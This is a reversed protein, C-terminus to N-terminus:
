SVAPPAARQRRAVFAAIASALDGKPDFSAGHLAKTDADIRGAVVDLIQRNGAAASQSWSAIMTGLEVARERLQERGVLESVVGMALAVEATIERGGLFMARAVSDGFTDAVLRIGAESYTLGIKAAPIALRTEPSAIRIDASLALELGGGIVNGQLAVVIPVPASRLSRFNDEHAILSDADSTSAEILDYGACFDPPEATIVIVRTGHPRSAVLHEIGDITSRGLVNRREGALLRVELVGHGRDQASVRTAPPAALKPRRRVLKSTHRLGSSVRHSVVSMRRTFWNM